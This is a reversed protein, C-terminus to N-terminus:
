KSLRLKVKRRQLDPPDQPIMMFSHGWLDQRSHHQLRFWQHGEWIRQSTPCGDQDMALLEYRHGEIAGQRQSVHAVKKSIGPLSVEEGQKSVLGLGGRLSCGQGAKEYQRVGM